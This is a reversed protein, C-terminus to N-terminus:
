VFGRHNTHSCPFVLPQVGANHGAACACGEGGEGLFFINAKSYIICFHFCLLPCAAFLAQLPNSHKQRETSADARRRKCKPQLERGRAEKKSIFKEWLQSPKKQSITVRIFGNPANADCQLALRERKQRVKSPSGKM